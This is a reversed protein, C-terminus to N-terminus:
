WCIMASLRFRAALASFLYSGTRGDDEALGDEISIIPYKEVWGEYFAILEMGDFVRGEKQLRYKGSEFLESAAVDLALM